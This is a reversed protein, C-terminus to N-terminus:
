VMLKILYFHYQKWRLPHPAYIKTKDRLSGSQTYTDTHGQSPTHTQTDAYQKCFMFFVFKACVCMEWWFNIWNKKIFFQYPKIVSTLLSLKTLSFLLLLLLFPLSMLCNIVSTGLTKYYRNRMRQSSLNPVKRLNENNFKTLHGVILQLRCFPYSQTDDNPIYM